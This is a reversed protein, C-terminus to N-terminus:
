SKNVCKSGDWTQTKTDCGHEDTEGDGSGGFVSTMVFNVIAFALLAVVLGVVGYLITNKGKQVKNAEGQSTLFTIGGLIIVVVAVVGLIGLVTNIVSVITKSLDQPNAEDQPVSCEAISNTYNERAMGDPCKGGAAMVPRAMMVAGALTLAFLGVVALTKKM